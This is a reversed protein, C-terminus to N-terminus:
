SNSSLKTEKINNYNNVKQMWNAFEMCVETNEIITIKRVHNFSTEFRKYVKINDLGTCRRFSLSEINCNAQPNQLLPHSTTFNTNIFEIHFKWIGDQLFRDAIFETNQVIHHDRLNKLVRFENVGAPFVKRMDLDKGSHRHDIFIELYKMNEKLGPLAKFILPVEFSLTDITCSVKSIKSNRDRFVTFLAEYLTWIYEKSLKRRCWDSVIEAMMDFNIESAFFPYDFKPQAYIKRSFNKPFLSSWREDNLFALYVDIVKRQQRSPSSACFPKSWLLPVASGCWKRNVLICSYLEALKFQGNDGEGELLLKFIMRLIEPPLIGAM